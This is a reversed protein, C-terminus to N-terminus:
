GGMLRKLSAELSKSREWLIVVVTKVNLTIVVKRKNKVMLGVSKFVILKAKKKKLKM